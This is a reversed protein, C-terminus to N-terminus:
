AHDAERPEAAVNPSNGDRRSDRRRGSKRGLRGSASRRELSLRPKQSAANIANAVELLAVQVANAINYPDSPANRWGEARAVLQAHIGRVLPHLSSGSQTETANM